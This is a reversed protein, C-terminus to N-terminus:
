EALENREQEEEEMENMRNDIDEQSVEVESLFYQTAQSFDKIAKGNEAFKEILKEPDGETDYEFSSDCYNGYVRIDGENICDYNVAEDIENRAEQLIADMICYVPDINELPTNTEKAFDKIKEVADEPTWGANLAHVLAREIDRSGFPCFATEFAYIQNPNPHKNFWM